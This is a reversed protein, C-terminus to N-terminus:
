PNTSSVFYEIENSSLNTLYIENPLPNSIVIEQTEYDDSMKKQIGIWLSAVTTYKRSKLHHKLQYHHIAWLCKWTTTKTTL